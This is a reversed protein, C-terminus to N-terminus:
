RGAADIRWASAERVICRTELLLRVLEYIARPSGHMTRVRIGTQTSSCARTVRSAM